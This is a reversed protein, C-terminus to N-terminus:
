SRAPMPSTSPGIRASAATHTRGSTASAAGAGMASSALLKLLASPDSHISDARNARPIRVTSARAGASSIVRVLKVRSTMTNANRRWASPVCFVGGFWTNIPRDRNRVKKM